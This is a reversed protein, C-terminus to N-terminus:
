ESTESQPLLVTKGVAKELKAVATNLESIRLHYEAVIGFFEKLADKLDNSSGVGVTQNQVAANLWGKALRKSKDLAKVAEQLSEAEIYSTEVELLIGEMAYKEDSALAQIEAKAERVKHVKVGFNLPMKGVLFLGPVISGYNYSNSFIFPTSGNNYDMEVGPTYGKRFSFTLAFDPAFDSKYIKLKNELAKIGKRLAEFEPRSEVATKKYDDLPKLKIDIPEQPTDAIDIRRNNDTGVLFNLGALATKEIQLVQQEMADLKADFVKLKVLDIQTDTGEQNELNEEVKEIAKKLHKRGEILTYHMERAGILAHYARHVDFVIQHEFTKYMAEKAGRAGELARKGHWLKRSSPIPIAGNFSAHFSPGWKKDKWDNVSGINDNGECATVAGDESLRACNDQVVTFGATLNFNSFPLWWLQEQQEEFVTLRAREAKLKASNQLAKRVCQKLTLLTANESQASVGEPKKPGVSTDQEESVAVTSTLLTITSWIWIFNLQKTM